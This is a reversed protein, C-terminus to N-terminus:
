KNEKHKQRISHIYKRLGKCSFFKNVEKEWIQRLSFTKKYSNLKAYFFKLQIKEKARFIFKAGKTLDCNLHNAVFLFMLRGARYRGIQKITSVFKDHVVSAYLPFSLDTEPHLAFRLIDKWMRNYEATFECSDGDLDNQYHGEEHDYVRLAKSFSTSLITIEDSLPCYFGIAKGVTQNGWGACNVWAKYFKQKNNVVNLYLGKVGMWEPWLHKKIFVSMENAYALLANYGKGNNYVITGKKYHDILSQKETKSFRGDAPAIISEGLIHVCKVQISSLMLIICLVINKKMTYWETTEEHHVM